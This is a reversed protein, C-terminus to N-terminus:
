RQIVIPVHIYKEDYRIIAYYKGSAVATGQANSGNWLFTNKGSDRQEASTQLVTNGEMDSITIQVMSTQPLAYEITVSSNTPNPMTQVDHKELEDAISSTGVNLTMPELANWLDAANAGGDGNVANGVARITYTGAQTPATWSFDWRAQGSEMVKPSRHTLEGGGALRSGDGATITGANRNSADSIRLNFGASTKSSHGVIIFLQITAGPEVNMSGGTVTPIDVTTESSKQGHCGGDGCGSVTRGTKGGSDAFLTDSCLLMVVAILSSKIFIKMFFCFVIFFNNLLQLRYLSRHLVWVSLLM